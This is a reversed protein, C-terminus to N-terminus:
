TRANGTESTKRTMKKMTGYAPSTWWTGLQNSEQRKGNQGFILSPLFTAEAIVLLAYAKQCSFQWCM